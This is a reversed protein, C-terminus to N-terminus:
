DRFFTRLPKRSNARCAWENKALVLTDAPVDTKVVSCRPGIVVNDGIRCEGFVSAGASLIVGDGLTPYKGSIAGVTCNQYVVFRNGYHAKGLVTGVGHVIFFLQPLDTDYMCHFAHLSKNLYFVKAAADLKGSRYLSNALVCLYMCYQDSHMPDFSPEGNRCYGPMVVHRFCTDIRQLAVRCEQEVSHSGLMNGIPFLHNIQRITFEALAAPSFACEM